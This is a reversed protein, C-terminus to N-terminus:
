SQRSIVQIGRESQIGLYKIFVMWFLIMGVMEIFEEISKAFHRIGDPDLGLGDELWTHVNLKNDPELGEIYDLAVAFILCILAIILLKRLNKQKINSRLFFFFYFGSILFLPAFLLLWAYSPFFDLIRTFWGSDNMATGLREHIESGDDVAMYTFLLALFTWGVRQRKTTKTNKHILVILWLTLGVLFTLTTGFWSALSDERAINCLRRIAGIDTLQNYNVFADVFVLFLAFVICFIAIRHSLKNFDIYISISTKSSNDM